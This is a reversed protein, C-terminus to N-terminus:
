ATVSRGRVTLRPPLGRVSLNRWAKAFWDSYRVFPMAAGKGAIYAILAAFDSTDWENVGPPEALGHVLLLLTGAKAIAGDVFTQATALNQSGLGYDELMYPSVVPWNITAGRTLSGSLVGAEKVGAIVTANRLSSFYSIHREAGVGSRWGNDRVKQMLDLVHTRVQEQTMATLDDESHIGVEWGARYLKDVQAASAIPGITFENPEAFVIGQAGYQQCVDYGNTVFSAHPGAAALICCAQGQVDGHIHDFSARAVNGATPTVILRVRIMKNAWSEGGGPSWQDQTMAFLNWGEDAHNLVSAQPSYAFQKSFDTTSSFRISVSNYNAIPDHLKVYFRVNDWDSMDLDIPATVMSLAGVRSTVKISKGGTIFNETDLAVAGGSALTWDALTDCDQIVTGPDTLPGYSV